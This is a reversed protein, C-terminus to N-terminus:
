AGHRGEAGQNGPRYFVADAIEEPLYPQDKALDPNEHPYRYKAGYCMERTLATPANRLHMPVPLDGPQRILKRAEELPLYASTSKPSRALYIVAQSLIIGGEPMGVTVAAQFATQAMLLANPNALGIDESAAILMRRGIFKVDEGAELMRTMWYVSAQPDSGRISKIFASAMTYHADGAKDYHFVKEIALKGIAEDDIIRASEGAGQGACALELLNLGKRADGGALQLLATSQIRIVGSERLIDDQELAETLVKEMEEPTLPILTYVPCRSLLAPIVEFSPNETTAGILTVTGKEVAHLLSDQQSKSFRHIEDIFLVPAVGKTQNEIAAQQIAERVERVGSHVANLSILTCGMEQALLRALTTKGTGPPGWFVISPLRGSQIWRQLPKDKGLLHVQGIFASLRKPRMREALPEM